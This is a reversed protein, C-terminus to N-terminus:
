YNLVTGSYISGMYWFVYFGMYWFVYFGYVLICLVGYVLICLVGYVLICQIWTGSYMSGMYCFVHFGYVLLYLVWTGSYMSGMYWFVSFGRVLICQVGHVLICLVWTSSYMSGMYWFVYSGIYGSSPVKSNHIDLNISSGRKKRSRSVLKIKYKYGSFHIFNL